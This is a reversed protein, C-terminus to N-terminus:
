KLVAAAPPVPGAGYARTIAGVRAELSAPFLWWTSLRLRRPIEKMLGDAKVLAQIYTAPDSTAQIAKADAEADLRRTTRITLAWLCLLAAVSVLPALSMPAALTGFVAALVTGLWPLLPIRPSHPAVQRALLADVEADNLRELHLRPLLLGHTVALRRSLDPLVRFRPRGPGRDLSEVWTLEKATARLGLWIDTGIGCVVFVVFGAVVWWSGRVAVALPQVVALLFVAASIRVRPPGIDRYKIFWRVYDALPVFLWLLVVMVSLWFWSVHSITRLLVAAPRSPLLKFFLSPGVLVAILAALLVLLFRKM